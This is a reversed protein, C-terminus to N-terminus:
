ETMITFMYWVHTHLKYTIYGSKLIHWLLILKEEEESGGGWTNYIYKQIFNKKM